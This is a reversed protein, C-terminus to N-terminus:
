LPPLPTGFAPLRKLASEDGPGRLIRVGQPEQFSIPFTALLGTKYAGLDLYVQRGLLSAFRLPTHGHVSYLVGEPLTFPGDYPRLWLAAAEPTPYDPHAKPPSAHSLMVSPEAPLEASVRGDACVYVVRQLAELYRELAAPFTELTLEAGQRRVERRVAEGGAEMWWRFGEMAKRYDSVEGSQQYQRFWRLGELCMREHNGMLLTARGAEALELLKEAVKMGHPGRDFADGLSIFHAQPYAELAAELLDFRGHLDPIAVPTLAAEKREPNADEYTTTYGGPLAVAGLTM